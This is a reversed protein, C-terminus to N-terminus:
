VPLSAGMTHDAFHLAAIDDEEVVLDDGTVRHNVTGSRESGPASSFDVGAAHVSSQGVAGELADLLESYQLPSLYRGEIEIGITGKVLGHKILAMKTAEVPDAGTKFTEVGAGASSAEFRGGEFEWLVMFPRGDQPLVLCQYDWLNLSNHGCLYYINPASHVILTDIERAEMAARVRAQRAEFEELPFGPEKPISM